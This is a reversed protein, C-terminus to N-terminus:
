MAGKLSRIWINGLWASWNVEILFRVDICTCLEFDSFIIFSSLSATM